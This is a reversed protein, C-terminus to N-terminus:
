YATNWHMRGLSHGSLSPLQAAILATRALSHEVVGASLLSIVIHALIGTHTLKTIEPKPVHCKYIVLYRSVNDSFAANSVFLSNYHDVAHQFIHSPLYTAISHGEVQHLPVSIVMDEVKILWMYIVLYSQRTLVWCKM